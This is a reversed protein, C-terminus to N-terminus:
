SHSSAGQRQVRSALDWGVAGRVNTWSYCRGTRPEFDGSKSLRREM